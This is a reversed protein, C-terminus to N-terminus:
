LFHQNLVVPFKKLQILQPLVQIKGCRADRLSAPVGYFTFTKLTERVM